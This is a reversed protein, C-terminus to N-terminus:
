ASMRELRAVTHAFGYERALALAGPIDGADERLAVEAAKDVEPYIKLAQGPSGHKSPKRTPNTVSAKYTTM